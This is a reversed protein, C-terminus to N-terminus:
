KPLLQHLLEESKKKEELMQDTREKVLAELNNTYQELRKILSDLMNLSKGRCTLLTPASLTWCTPRVRVCGNLERIKSFIDALSPRADPAERLCDLGTQVLGRPGAESPIKPRFLFTPNKTVKGVIESASYPGTHRSL